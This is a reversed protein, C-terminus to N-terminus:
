REGGNDSSVITLPFDSPQFEKTALGQETQLYFKRSLFPALNNEVRKMWKENLAESNLVDQASLREVIIQEKQVMKEEGDSTQPKDGLERSAQREHSKAQGEEFANTYEIINVILSLNTQITEHNPHQELMSQYWDRAKLYEKQRALCAGVGLQGDLTDIRLYYHKALKYEGAQYYSEAKWHYDEFIEAAQIYDQKEYLYQGQQDKSMWVDIFSFDSAYTSPAHFTSLLVVIPLCWQVVWGKRAWLLYIPVMLWILAYGSDLWPESDEGNLQSSASVKDVLAAIDSDDSEFRLYEGGVARALQELSDEDMPMAVREKPSGMGWVLLQHGSEDFYLQWGDLQNVNIADSVLLVTAKSAHNRLLTNVVSLSYHEFKGERPMVDTDIADLLPKFVATDKTLPMALHASGSYVILATLGANRQEILQNIKQKARYLRTPAIDSQLMSESVDLIVVLASNDESIPSMQRQWTPGAAVVAALTGLVALLIVPTNQRWRGHGVLLAKRLHPPLAKVRGSVKQGQKLKHGILLFFPILLLLWEPRMFHFDDM